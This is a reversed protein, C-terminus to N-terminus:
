NLIIIKIGAPVEAPLMSLLLKVWAIIYSPQWFARVNAAQLLVLLYPGIKKPQYNESVDSCHRFLSHPMVPVRNLLIELKVMFFM